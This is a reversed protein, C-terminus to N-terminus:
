ATTLNSPVPSPTGTPAIRRTMPWALLAAAGPKTTCCPPVSTCLTCFGCNPLLSASPTSAAMMMRSTANPDTIAMTSGM